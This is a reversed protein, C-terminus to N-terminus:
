GLYGRAGASTVAEAAAACAESVATTLDAGDALRAALTGVLVDGAGTTDVAQVRPSSVRLERRSGVAGSVVVAGEAGLSVVVSPCDLLDALPRALDAAPAHSAFTGDHERLLDVAEHENVVLPDAARLTDLDLGEVPAPNLVLRVGRAAAERAAAVVPATGPETQALVVDVDGGALAREVDDAGLLANAGAGVAISNEGDPTLVILAAGTAVDAARRVGSVDVGAAELSGLQEQGAADDGVVACLRVAAGAYAAAAAQNAGKGGGGVVPGEGVTTEGGTPRRDVRVTVDQNVGGVVLVVGM